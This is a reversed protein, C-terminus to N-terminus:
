FAVRSLESKDAKESIDQHESLFGRDNILQSTKTPLETKLAYSKLEEFLTDIRENTKPLTLLEGDATVPSDPVVSKEVDFAYVESKVIKQQDGEAIIQALLRGPADLVSYPLYYQATKGTLRIEPTLCRCGAPTLFALRIEYSLYADDVTIELSRSNNEGEFIDREILKLDM